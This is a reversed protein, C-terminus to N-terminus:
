SGWEALWADVRAALREARSRRLHALQVEMFARLLPAEQPILGVLTSLADEPAWGRGEEAVLTHFGRNGERVLTESLLGYGLSRLQSRVGPVGATPQLVLRKLGLHRPEGQSLVDLIKRGGFGALVAVEAENARLPELGEGLRLEVKSTGLRRRAAQLPAEARDCGIGRAARGSALLVEPLLAHDTGIDAVRARDPIAEALSALRPGFGFRAWPEPVSSPLARAWPPM